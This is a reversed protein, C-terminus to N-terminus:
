GGFEKIIDAVNSYEEAQGWLFGQVYDCELEQLRELQEETEVGEAIVETNLLHGMYVVSKVFDANQKTTAVNDILTKDLKVVNIPLNMLQGLSTYGTGFDDLAVGVNHERLKQINEITHSQAGALSYETIEIELCDTPFRIENAFELLMNAFGARGIDKASVNVTVIIRKRSGTCIKGLERMARRLAYRDIDFILESKEAIEIFDCAPIEVGEKDRMRILAEFGRLTKNAASYQPQYVLYFNGKDLSEKLQKEVLADRVVQENMEENFVCIKNRKSKMAYNKAIDSRKIIDRASVDGKLFSVIGIHATLYCVTTLEGKKIQIPEEVSRILRDAIGAYNEFEPLLISFEAGELKFAQSSKVDILNTVREALVRLVEDGAERGVNAYEQSFGDIHMILLHGKEKNHIKNYLTHEFEYSNLLGTIDDTVARLESAICQRSIIISAILFFVSNVPGTLTDLQRSRIMHGVSGILSTCIAVIAFKLGIKPSTFIMAIGVMYTVIQICGLVTNFHLPTGFVDITSAGFLRSIVGNAAVLLVILTGYIILRRKKIDDNFIRMFEDEENM